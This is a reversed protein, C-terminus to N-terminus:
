PPRRRRPAPRGARLPGATRAQGTYMGEAAVILEKDQKYRIPSRFSVQPAPAAAADALAWVYAAGALRARGALVRGHEQPVAASGGVARCLPSRAKALPAGRGPDHLVDTM